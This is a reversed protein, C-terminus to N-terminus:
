EIHIYECVCASGSLEVSWVRSNNSVGSCPVLTGKYIIAITPSSFQSLYSSCELKEAGYQKTAECLNASKIFSPEM